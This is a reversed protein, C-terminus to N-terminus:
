IDSPEVLVGIGVSIGVYKLSGKGNLWAMAQPTNILEVELWTMVLGTDYAKGGLTTPFANQRPMCNHM